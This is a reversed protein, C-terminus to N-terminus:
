LVQSLLVSSHAQCFSGKWLGPVLSSFYLGALDRIEGAIKSAPAGLLTVGPACSLPCLCVKPPLPGWSPTQGSILTILPALSLAGRSVTQGGPAPFSGLPSEEPVCVSRWPGSAFCPVDHLGLSSSSRSGSVQPPRWALPGWAQPASDWARCSGAERQLEGSGEAPQGGAAGGRPVTRSLHGCDATAATLSAIALGVQPRQGKRLQSIPVMCGSGQSVELICHFSIPAASCLVWAGM